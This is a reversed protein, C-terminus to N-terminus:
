MSRTTSSLDSTGSMPSFRKRMRAYSATRVRSCLSEAPSTAFPSHPFCPQLHAFTISLARSSITLSIQVQVNGVTTALMAPEKKTDQYRYLCIPSWVGTRPYHDDFREARIAIFPVCARATTSDVLRPLIMMDMDVGSRQVPAELSLLLEAVCYYSFFGLMARVSELMYGSLDYGNHWRVLDLVYALQGVILFVLQGLCDGFDM